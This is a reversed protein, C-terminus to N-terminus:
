LEKNKKSDIWGQFDWNKESWFDAELKILDTRIPNFLNDRSFALQWASDHRNAMANLDWHQMTALPKIIINGIDNKLSLSEDAFLEGKEDQRVPIPSGAYKAYMRYISTECVGYKRAEWKSDTLQTSRKAMHYVDIYFMIKQLQINSIPNGIDICYNLVYRALDIAKM